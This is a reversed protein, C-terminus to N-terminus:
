SQSGFWGDATSAWSPLIDQYLPEGASGPEKSRDLMAISKVTKPLAELFATSDFPRYLRVKVIGMKEGQKVMLDVAEEAAEAGSGMIIIVREAYPAGYYDFLRYARGTQAALRDM